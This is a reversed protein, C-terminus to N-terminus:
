SILLSAHRGAAWRIERHAASAICLAGAVDGLVDRQRDLSRLERMRENREPANGILLYEQKWVACERWRRAEGQVATGDARASRARAGASVSSRAQRKAPEPLPSQSCTLLLDSPQSNLAM